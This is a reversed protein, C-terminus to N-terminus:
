YAPWKWPIAIVVEPIRTKDDLQGQLTEDAKIISEASELDSIIRKAEEITEPEFRFQFGKRKRVLRIKTIDKEDIM